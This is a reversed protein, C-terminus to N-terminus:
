IWSEVIASDDGANRDLRVMHEPIDGRADDLTGFVAIYPTPKNARADWLRVVIQGPFDKPNRYVTCLILDTAVLPLADRISHVVISEPLSM